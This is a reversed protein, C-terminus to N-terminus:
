KVGISSLSKRGRALEGLTTPQVTTVDPSKTKGTIIPKNPITEYAYGTLTEIFFKGNTPTVTLRAWGYHVKGRIVFKMGLYRNKVGKGGNAWPGKFQSTTGNILREGMFAIGQKAFTIAPGISVGAPLARASYGFPLAPKAVVLNTSRHHYSAVFMSTYLSGDLTSHHLAFDVVHDHNLDLRLGAHSFGIVTNSPTYVIKAEAPQVLALTGVGAASAALVYMSLRHHVSDSLNATKRPLLSAKM